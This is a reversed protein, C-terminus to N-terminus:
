LRAAEAIRKLEAIAIAHYSDPHTWAGGHGADELTLLRSGGMRAALKRAGAHPAILDRRGAIFSTRPWLGPPPLGPTERWLLGLKDRVTRSPTAALASARALFHARRQLGRSAFEWGAFLAFSIPLLAGVTRDPNGTTEAWAVARPFWRPQSSPEPTWALLLGSVRGPHRAAAALAVLSGYSTGWLIAPGGALADLARHVESALFDWTIPGPAPDDHRDGSTDVRAVRFGAAAAAACEDRYLNVGGAIGALKVVLPGSGSEAWKM